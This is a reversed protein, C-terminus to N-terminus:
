GINFIAEGARGAALTTGVHQRVEIPVLHRDPSPSDTMDDSPGLAEPNIV